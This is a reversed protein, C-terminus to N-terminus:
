ALRLGIADRLSIAFAFKGTPVFRSSGGRGNLLRETNVKVKSALPFIRGIRWCHDLATRLL